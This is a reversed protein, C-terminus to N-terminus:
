QDNSQPCISGGFGKQSSSCVPKESLGISRFPPVHIHVDLRGQRCGTNSCAPCPSRPLLRVERVALHRLSKEQARGLQSPPLSMLQKYDAAQRERLHIEHVVEPKEWKCSLKTVLHSSKSGVENIDIVFKGQLELFFTGRNGLAVRLPLWLM